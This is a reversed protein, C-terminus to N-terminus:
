AFSVGLISTRNEDCADKFDRHCEWTFQMGTKQLVPDAVSRLFSDSANIDLADGIMLVPREQKFVIEVSHVFQLNYGISL